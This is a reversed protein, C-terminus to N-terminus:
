RTIRPRRSCRPGTLSRRHSPRQPSCRTRARSTRSSSRNLWRSPQRTPSLGRLSTPLGAAAFGVVLKVPQRPYTAPQALAASALMSSTVILGPRPWRLMDTTRHTAGPRRRGPFPPPDLRSPRRFQRHGLALLTASRWSACRSRDAATTANSRLGTSTGAATSANDSVVSRVLASRELEMPNAEIRKHSTFALAEARTEFVHAASQRTSLEAGLKMRMFASTTYRVATSYHRRQLDSVMEFYADSLTEDLRFGDYNVVLAVRHGIGSCLADFVRRVSEIDESSRITLGEFNAFLTRRERDYSLRDALQLDLLAALLQL